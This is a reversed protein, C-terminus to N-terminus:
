LPTSITLLKPSDTDVPVWGLEQIVFRGAAIDGVISQLISIDEHTIELDISPIYLRYM